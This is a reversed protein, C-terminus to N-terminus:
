VVLGCCLRHHRHHHRHHHRCSVVLAFLHQEQSSSPLGVVVVLDDGGRQVNGWWGRGEGVQDLITGVAAVQQAAHGEWLGPKDAMADVARRRLTAVDTASQYYEPNICCLAEGLV